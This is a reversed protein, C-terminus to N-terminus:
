RNETKLAEKVSATVAETLKQIETESLAIGSSLGEIQTRLSSNEEKLAEVEKQLYFLMELLEPKKLKRVEKDTMINVM